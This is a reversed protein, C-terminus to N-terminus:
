VPHVGLMVSTSPESLGTPAVGGAPKEDTEIIPEVNDTM